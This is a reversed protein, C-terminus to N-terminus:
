EKAECQPNCYLGYYICHHCKYPQNVPRNLRNLDFENKSSRIGSNLTKIFSLYKEFLPIFKEDSLDEETLEKENPYVNWMFPDVYYRFLYYRDIKFHEIFRYCWVQAHVSDYEPYRLYYADSVAKFEYLITQGARKLILDPRCQLAITLTDTKIYAQFNQQNDKGSGDFIIKQPEKNKKLIWEICKYENQQGLLRSKAKISMDYSDHKAKRFSNLAPSKDLFLKAGCYVYSGFDSASPQISENKIIMINSSSISCKRGRRGRESEYSDTIYM